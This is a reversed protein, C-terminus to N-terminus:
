RVVFRYLLLLPRATDIKGCASEGESDLTLNLAAPAIGLWWDKEPELNKQLFQQAEDNLIFVLHGGDRECWEQADLFSRELAVFEYCSGNFGQQNEPCSLTETDEVAYCTWSLLLVILTLAPFASCEM